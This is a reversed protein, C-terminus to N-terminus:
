KRHGDGGKMNSAGPKSGAVEHGWPRV